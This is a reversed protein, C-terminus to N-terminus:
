LHVGPAPVCLVTYYQEKAARGHAGQQLPSRVCTQSAAKTITLFQIATAVTMWGTSSMTLLNWIQKGALPMAGHQTCCISIQALISIAETAFWRGNRRRGHDFPHTRMDMMLFSVLVIDQARSHTKGYSAHHPATPCHRQPVSTCPNVM